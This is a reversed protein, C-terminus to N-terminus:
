REWPNYSPYEGNESWYYQHLKAEDGGDNGTNNQVHGSGGLNVDGGSCIYGLLVLDTVELIPQMYKKKM